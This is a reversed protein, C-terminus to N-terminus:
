IAGAGKGLRSANDTRAPEHDGNPDRSEGRHHVPELPSVQVVRGKPRDDLSIELRTLVAVGVHLGSGPSFRRGVSTKTSWIRTVGNKQSRM